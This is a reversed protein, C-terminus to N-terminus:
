VEEWNNGDIIKEVKRHIEEATPQATSQVKASQLARRKFDDFPINQLAAYSVEYARLLTEDSEKNVLYEIIEVVESLEARELLALNGCCYRIL